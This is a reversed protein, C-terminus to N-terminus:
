VAAAGGGGAPLLAVGRLRSEGQHELLARFKPLTDRGGSLALLNEVLSTIFVTKGARSLGTM